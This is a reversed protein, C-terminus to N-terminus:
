TYDIRLENQNTLTYTVTATLNGPYGEEGDKSVYTFKVAAGDAATVPEAKWVVKDFGKLGGHLANPKNNIALKYEKGDLTFRGKAIRNAVRGVTAGFYPHGSLYDRLNDFGLVVDESKGHRDPVDLETLIAGYTMIKATLGSTNTLTYLDVETGDSAEGFSQKQ